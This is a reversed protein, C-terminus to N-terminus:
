EISENQFDGRFFDMFEEIHQGVAFLDYRSQTHKYKDLALMYNNCLAYLDDRRKDAHEKECKLYALHYAEYEDKGQRMYEAAYEDLKDYM